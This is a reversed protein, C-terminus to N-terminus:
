PFEAQAEMLRRAGRLSKRRHDADEYSKVFGPIDGGASFARGAGTIIVARVSDNESLDWWIERMGEHMDDLFANMMSPNNMTITAIPGDQEILLHETAAYPM